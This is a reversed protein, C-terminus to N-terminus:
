SAVQVPIEVCALDKKDQDKLEWKVLLKLSPYLKSVYIAKFFKVPVGPKLPCTLGSDKCGDVGTIPYPVPVGVIVGHVVSTVSKTMGNPTFAISITSNKGKHLTCSSPNDCPDVFVAQVKGSGTCDIFKVKVPAAVALGVFVSITLFIASKMIALNNTFHRWVNTRDCRIFLITRPEFHNILM